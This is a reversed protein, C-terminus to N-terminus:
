DNLRIKWSVLTGCTPLGVRVTNFRAVCLTLIFNLLLLALLLMGFGRRVQEVQAIFACVPCDEGICDHDAELAIYASSVFMILLMGACMLLAIWRKQNSM